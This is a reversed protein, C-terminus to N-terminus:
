YALEGGAFRLDISGCGDRCKHSRREEIESLCIEQDSTDSTDIWFVTSDSVNCEGFIGNLDGELVLEVGAFDWGVVTGGIDGM